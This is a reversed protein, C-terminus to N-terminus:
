ESRDLVQNQWFIIVCTWINRISLYRYQRFLRYLRELLAMKRREKKLLCVSFQFNVINNKAVRPRNLHFFDWIQKSRNLQFRIYKTCFRKNCRFNAKRYYRWSRNWPTKDFTNNCKPLFRTGSQRACHRFSRCAVTIGGGGLLRWISHFSKVKRSVTNTSPQSAPRKQPICPLYWIYLVDGDSSLAVGQWCICPM